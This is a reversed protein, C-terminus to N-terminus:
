FNALGLRSQCYIFHTRQFNTLLKRTQAIAVRSLREAYIMTYSSKCSRITYR